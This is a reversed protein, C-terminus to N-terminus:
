TLTKDIIFLEEVFIRMNTLEHILMVGVEEMQDVGKKDRM